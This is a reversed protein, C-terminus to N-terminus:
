YNEIRFIAQKNVNSNDGNSYFMETEEANAETVFREENQILFNVLVQQLVNCKAESQREKGRCLM